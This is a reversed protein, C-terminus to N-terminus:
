AKGFLYIVKCTKTDYIGLVYRKDLKTSLVKNLQADLIKNVWPLLNEKLTRVGKLKLTPVDDDTLGAEERFRKVIDSM